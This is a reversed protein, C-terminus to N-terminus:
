LQAEARKRETIDLLIGQSGIITGDPGILPGKIVHFYQERGDPGVHYEELEVSQGSEVILKHHNAGENLVKIERLRDPHEADGPKWKAAAFEDATKGI